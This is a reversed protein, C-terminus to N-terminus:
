QLYQKVLGCDLITYNDNPRDTEDTPVKNLGDILSFGHIVEGFVVHKGDLHQAPGTLIFFQSGNTNPGANAMSLLYKKNHKLKFNEDEFTEGYISKGGTGDGNTFDGGQIMFDSIIRHFPSDKYSTNECLTRFNKCTKPVINSFLKITIRGIFQGNFGIDMYVLDEPKKTPLKKEEKNEKDKYNKDKINIKVKNKIKDPINKVTKKNFIYLFIIIVFFFIFINHM